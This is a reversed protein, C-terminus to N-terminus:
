RRWPSSSAGVRAPRLALRRQAAPHRACDRGGARRCFSPTSRARRGVLEPRRAHLALRETNGELLDRYAAPARLAPFIPRGRATRVVLHRVTPDAHLAQRVRTTTEPWARAPSKASSSATLRLPPPRPANPPGLPPLAGPGPPAPAAPLLPLRPKGAPVRVCGHGVRSPSRRLTQQSVRLRTATALMSLRSWQLKGM